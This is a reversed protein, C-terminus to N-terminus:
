FTPACLTLTGFRLTKLVYVDCFMSVSLIYVMVFHVTCIVYANCFTHKNQLATTIHREHKSVKINRISVNHAAVNLLM